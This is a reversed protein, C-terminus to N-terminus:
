KTTLLSTFILLVKKLLQNRELKLSAMERELQRIKERLKEIEPEQEKYKREMVRLEQCVKTKEQGLRKHHIRHFDREKKM